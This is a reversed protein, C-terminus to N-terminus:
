CVDSTKGASGTRPSGGPFAREFSADANATAEALTDGAAVREDIYDARSRVIWTALDSVDPIELIVDGDGMGFRITSSGDFTHGKRCSLRAM